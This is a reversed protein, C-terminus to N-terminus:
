FRGSMVSVYLKRNFHHHAVAEDLIRKVERRLKADTEVDEQVKKTLRSFVYKRVEEDPNSVHLRDVIQRIMANDSGTKEIQKISKKRAAM